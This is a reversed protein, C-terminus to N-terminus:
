YQWCIDDKWCCMLMKEAAGLSVHQYLHLTTAAMVLVGTISPTTSDPAYKVFAFLNKPLENLSLLLKGILIPM